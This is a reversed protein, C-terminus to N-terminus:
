PCATKIEVSSRGSSIVSVMTGTNGAPRNNDCFNIDISGSTQAGNGQYDISTIGSPNKLTLTSSIPGVDRLITGAGTPDATITWGNKWDGTKAAIRVVVNRTVAENRTYAIDTALANATAALKNATTMSGFRPAVLAILVSVVALTILLEILTLGSQSKMYAKITFNTLMIVTREIFHQNSQVLPRPFDLRVIQKKLLTIENVDM